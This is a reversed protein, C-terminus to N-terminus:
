KQCGKVTIRAQNKAHMGNPNMHHAGTNRCTKDQRALDPLLVKQAFLPNCRSYISHFSGDYPIGSLFLDVQIKLNLCERLKGIPTHVNGYCCVM